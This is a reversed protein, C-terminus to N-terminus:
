DSPNGAKRFGSDLNRMRLRIEARIGRCGCSSVNPGALPLWNSFIGAQRFIDQRHRSFRRLNTDAPILILKTPSQLLASLSVSSIHLHNESFAKEFTPPSEVCPISNRQTLQIGKM